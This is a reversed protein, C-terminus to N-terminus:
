DGERSCTGCFRVGSRVFRCCECKTGSCCDSDTDCIDNNSTSIFLDAYLDAASAITDLTLDGVHAVDGIGALSALDDFTIDHGITSGVETITLSSTSAINTIFDQVINAVDSIPTNALGTILNPDLGHVDSFTIHPKSNIVAILDEVFDNFDDVTINDISRAFDPVLGAPASANFVAIINDRTINGLAAVEDVTVNFSPPLTYLAFTNIFLLSINALTAANNPGLIGVSYTYTTWTNLLANFLAPTCINKSCISGLSGPGICCDTTTTCPGNVPVCTGCTSATNCGGDGSYYACCELDNTCNGASQCCTNNLCQNSCCEDNTSCSALTDSCNSDIAQPMCVTAM